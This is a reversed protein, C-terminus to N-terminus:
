QPASVTAHIHLLSVRVCARTNLFSYRLCTLKRQLGLLYLNRNTAGGFVFFFVERHPGQVFLTRQTRQPVGHVRATCNVRKNQTTLDQRVVSFTFYIFLVRSFLVCRKNATTAPPGPDSKRM